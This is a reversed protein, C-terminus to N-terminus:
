VSVFKVKDMQKRLQSIFRFDEFVNFIAVFQSTININRDELWNASLIVFYQYINYKTSM